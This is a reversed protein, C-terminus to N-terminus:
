ISHLTVLTWKKFTALFIFSLKKLKNEIKYLTNVYFILLSLIIKTFKYHIYLEVFQASLYLLFLLLSFFIDVCVNFLFCLYSLKPCFPILLFDSVDWVRPLLFVFNYSMLLLIRCSTSFCVPWIRFINNLTWEM